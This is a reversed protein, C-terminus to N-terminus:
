RCASASSYTELAARPVSALTDSQAALGPGLRTGRNTCSRGKIEVEDGSQSQGDGRRRRMGQAREERVSEAKLREKM